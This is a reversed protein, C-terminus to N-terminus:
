CNGDIEMFWHGDLVYKTNGPKQPPEYIYLIIYIIYLIIYIIYLIYYIYIYQNTTKVMKFFIFTLPFSSMGYIISLILLFHKFGGVLITVIIVLDM